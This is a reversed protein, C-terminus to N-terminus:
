CYNKPSTNRALRPEPYIEGIQVINGVKGVAEATGVMGVGAMHDRWVKGAGAMHGRWVKGVVVMHNECVRGVEAKCVGLMGAVLSYLHSIDM